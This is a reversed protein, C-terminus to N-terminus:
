KIYRSSKITTVSSLCTCYYPFFNQYLCTIMQTPYFHKSCLNRLRFNCQSREYLPMHQNPSDYAPSFAHLFSASSNFCLTCWAKVSMSFIPDFNSWLREETGIKNKIKEQHSTFGRCITFPRKKRWKAADWDPRFSIAQHETYIVQTLLNM